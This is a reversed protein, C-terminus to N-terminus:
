GAIIAEYLRPLSVDMRYDIGSHNDVFEEYEHPVRATTLADRMQRAGYHLHYQDRSGCDLFLLKLSSLADAHKPIMRVPDWATWRAWREAHIVGTKLDVPLEFLDPHDPQPDFCAAMAVHMIAHTESGSRKQKETFAELFAALSGHRNVENLTRPLDTLFCFEFYSDGSHCALAGWIEPHLMGHVIAGFGGSSKGFVARHDRDPLTRFEGDVRPVLEKVLHQAYPGCVTSDIYQSGGLRTFCDPFAVIM